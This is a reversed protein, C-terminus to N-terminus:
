VTIGKSGLFQGANKVAIICVRRSSQSTRNSSVFCVREVVVEGVVTMQLLLIIM